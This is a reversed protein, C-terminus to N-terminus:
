SHKAKYKEIEQILADRAQDIAAHLDEHTKDARLTVGGPMAMDASAEFVEGKNHHASVRGIRVRLHLNGELEFKSVHKELVGMKEEIYINLSPSLDINKTSIEIKM